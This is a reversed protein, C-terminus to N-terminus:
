NAARLQERANRFVDEAPITRVEGKEVEAIRRDIERSWVESLPQPVSSALIDSLLLRQEPPLELMKAFAEDLEPPLSVLAPSM